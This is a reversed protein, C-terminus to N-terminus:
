FGGSEFSARLRERSSVLELAVVDGEELGELVESFQENRLGTKIEREVPVNNEIRDVLTRGTERDVRIARNPLLLVNERRDTVITANASMGARLPADTHELSITVIYTSVGADTVATPAIVDVRGMIEVGELADLTVKVPQGVAVKAIDIEDVQVDIHYHSQDVLVVAPMGAAAMEGERINVAAVVGDFPALLFAGELALQAQRVAARAQDVQAQAIALEEPSPGRLLKNLAAEAQAVQSKALALERETPSNLLRRLSAEAQTVQLSAAALESETPSKLLRELTAQAQAIQAEAAKLQDETPGRTALEYAAKAAEYAITAQQLQFSQPLAGKMGLWAVKDYESQALELNVRAQELQAKAAATENESPGALLRQYAAQASTLAARAAAIDEESPGAVVQDYAARATSVAEQAAAIDEPKPGAKVEEYAAQASALAARAAAIDNEDAGAKLKALQAESIALGAQAQMLALELEATELRALMDGARVTDGRKVLVKEVRGTGKFTLTVQAEPLITGTASVTSEINGREVTATKFAPKSPQKERGLVEYGAVSGIAVVAVVLAIVSARKM